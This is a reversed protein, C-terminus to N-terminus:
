SKKWLPPTPRLERLLYDVLAQRDLTESLGHQDAVHIDAREESVIVVLADSEETLGVAARHRTGFDGPLTHAQALPLLVRAAIVRAGDNSQRLVIAGDHLPAKPCFLTLAVDPTLPVDMKVASDTLHNLGTEREIVFLAGWHRHTLALASDALSYVLSEVASASSSTLPNIAVQMLGRRIEHQFLVVMIVVFFSFFQSFLWELTLLNFYRALAYVVMLVVLGVLMQEARTGRILRLAFYVFLSVLAIDVADIFHFNLDDFFHYSFM